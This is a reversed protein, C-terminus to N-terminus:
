NLFLKAKPASWSMICWVLLACFSVVSKPPCLSCWSHQFAYMLFAAPPLSSLYSLDKWVHAVSPSLILQSGNLPGESAFWLETVGLLIESELLRELASNDYTLHWRVLHPKNMSWCCASYGFAPSLCHCFASVRRQHKHSLVWLSHVFCLYSM